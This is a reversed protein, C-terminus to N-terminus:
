NESALLKNINDLLEKVLEKKAFAQDNDRLTETTRLALNVNQTLALKQRYDAIKMVLRHYQYVFLASLLAMLVGTSIVITPAAIAKTRILSAAGAGILIAAGVCAAAAFGCSRQAQTKIWEWHQDIDGSNRIVRADIFAMNPSDVDSKSTM